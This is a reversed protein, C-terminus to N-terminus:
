SRRRYEDWFEVFRAVARKRHSIANKEEPSLEALTRDLGEPVFLPDYGFGHTGREKMVIEGELTGEFIRSLSGDFFAIVTRFRAPSPGSLLELLRRRNDRDGANPGAFRASQVGPAGDLADVHLGTDDAFCVLGTKEYYHRAKLLANEELAGGTEDPESLGGFDAACVVGTPALLERVERHKNRNFSGFLLQIESM